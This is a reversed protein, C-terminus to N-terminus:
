RIQAQSKLTQQLVELRKRELEERLQPGVQGIPPPAVSRVDDLRIVHFGFQTRVPQETVGGKELKVMADSFEKVFTDPTNWDLDGGQKASGADKSRRALAEFREGKKLQAIIQRAEDERDVLIHRARYEKEGGASGHQREYEKRVEEDSVPAVNSLHDQIVARILIDERSQELQRAVEASKALGKREAEQAFLERLILQERILARLEATDPRGQAVFQRVVEELRDTTIAKGNVVVLDQAVVSGISLASLVLLQALTSGAPKINM